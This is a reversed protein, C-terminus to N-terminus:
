ANFRMVTRESGPESARRGAARTGAPSSSSAWASTRTAPSPRIRTM